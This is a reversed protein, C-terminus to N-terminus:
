SLRSLGVKALASIVYLLSPPIRQRIDEIAPIEKRKSWRSNEISVLSPAYLRPQNTAVEYRFDLNFWCVAIPDCLIALSAVKLKKRLSLRAPLEVPWGPAELLFGTTSDRHISSTKVGIATMNTLRMSFHLGVTLARPVQFEAGIPTGLSACCRRSQIGSIAECNRPVVDRGGSAGASGTARHRPRVSRRSHFRM